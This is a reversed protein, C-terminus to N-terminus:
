RFMRPAVANSDDNPDDENRAGRSVALEGTNAATCLKAWQGLVDTPLDGPRAALRIAMDPDSYRQKVEDLSLLVQLCSNMYCTNGLNALGVHAPGYLKQLAVGSETVKGWDYNLNM